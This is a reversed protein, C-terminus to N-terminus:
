KRELYALSKFKLKVRGVKHDYRELIPSCILGERIHNAGLVLTKGEALELIKEFNYPISEAIAPAWKVGYKEVLPRAESYNLWQGNKLVDFAFIMTEGPKCGYNFGKVKGASEGYLVCDPNNRCFNEVEPTYKLSKWFGNQPDPKKWRYHSGVKMRGEAEDWKGRWNEGEIKEICNVLEGEQFVTNYKRGSELDYVPAYCSPAAEDESFDKFRKQGVIDIEDPVPQYHTVGLIDKVDDGPQAGAPAPVLLGFSPIGRLKKAKILKKAGLFDFVPLDSVISEPPVFAALQGDVWDATRVCVTYGDVSVISLSDANPHSELKVSVVKVEFTSV